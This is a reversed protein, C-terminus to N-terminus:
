QVRPNVENFQLYTSIYNILISMASEIMVKNSRKAVGSLLQSAEKMQLMLQLWVCLLPLKAAASRSSLVSILDFRKL